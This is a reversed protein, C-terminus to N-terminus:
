ESDKLTAIWNRKTNDFIVTGEMTKEGTLHGIYKEGQIDFSIEDGTLKGNNIATLNDDVKYTGYFMQFDQRITLEGKQFKWTGEVKAPVIWMLATNWNIWNEETEDYDSEHYTDITITYDPEWDDMDFTNSLIRTGPKLELIRPRLELNIEPLLFMTIVTAKSLNYEFFDANIFKAKGSVGEDAANKKSLEILDANYEIGLSSAGLKAAAIVTRGDGSGLDIVTDKSTVKAIKLMKDVLELPTPVWIVDKGDQGVVPIYEVNESQKQAYLQAFISSLLFLLMLRIVYDLLKM